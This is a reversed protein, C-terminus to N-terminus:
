MLLPEIDNGNSFYLNFGCPSAMECRNSCCFYSSLDWRPHLLFHVECVNSTPIYFPVAMLSFLKVTKYFTLCISLTIVGCDCKWTSIRQSVFVHGGFIHMFKPPLKLQLLWFNSLLGFTNWPMFQYVFQPVGLCQLVLGTILVPVSQQCMFMKSPDWPWENYQTFFVVRLLYLEVQIVSEFFHHLVSWHNGPTYPYLPSRLSIAKTSISGHEIWVMTATGHDLCAIFHWPAIYM